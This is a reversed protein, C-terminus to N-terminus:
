RTMSATGGNTCVAEVAATAVLEGVSRAYDPTAWDLLLGDAIAGAMLAGMGDEDVRERVADLDRVDGGGPELHVRGRDHRWTGAM